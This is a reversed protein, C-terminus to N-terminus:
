KNNITWYSANVGPTKKLFDRSKVILRCIDKENKKKIAESLPLVFTNAHCPKIEMNPNVFIENSKYCAACVEKEGCGIKIVVGKIRKYEFWNMPLYDNQGRFLVPKDLPCGGLKIIKNIIETLDLQYKLHSEIIPEFNLFKFYFNRQSCFDLLEALGKLSDNIGKVPVIKIEVKIKGRNALKGLYDLNKMLSKFQKESGNTLRKWTQYNTTHISVAVKSFHILFQDIIEKTLLIGNTHFFTKEIKAKNVISLIDQIQPHLTPDGGTLALTKLGNKKCVTLLYKFDNINIFAKNRCELDMGENSCFFCALNCFDTLSVRLPYLKLITSILM